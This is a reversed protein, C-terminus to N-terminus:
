RGAPTPEPLLAEQELLTAICDSVAKSLDAEDGAAGLEVALQAQIDGATRTGDCLAYVVSAMENLHLARETGPLLLLLESAIEKVRAEQNRKLLDNL